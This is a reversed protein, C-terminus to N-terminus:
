TPLFNQRFWGCLSLRPSHNETVEHEILDARFVVFTRAAPLIEHVTNQSDTLRLLGGDQLQRNESFYILVTFLRADSSEHRDRHKHYHGGPPYRAFFFEREPLAVLFAESIQGQVEALADFVKRDQPVAEDLWLLEDNRILTNLSRNSNRGIQAATFEGALLIEQLRQWCIQYLHSDLPLVGFCIGKQALQDLQETSLLSPRM